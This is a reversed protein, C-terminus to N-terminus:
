RINHRDKTACCWNHEAKMKLHPDPFKFQPVLKSMRELFKTMSILM